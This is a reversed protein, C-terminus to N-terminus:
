KWGSLGETLELSAGWPDTLLATAVGDAGRAYPRDLTMGAAVLRRCFAELGSEGPFVGPGEPPTVATTGTATTDDGTTGVTEDSTTVPTEGTSESGAGTTPEGTGISAPM